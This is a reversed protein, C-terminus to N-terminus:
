RRRGVPMTQRRLRPELDGIGTTRCPPAARDAAGSRRRSPSADLRLFFECAHSHTPRISRALFGKQDGVSGTERGEATSRALPNRDELYDVKIANLRPPDGAKQRSKSSGRTTVNTCATSINRFQRERLRALKDLRRRPLFIKANFYYITPEARAPQSSGSFM